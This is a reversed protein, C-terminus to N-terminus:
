PSAWNTGGALSPWVLNGEETPETNPLIMPRGNDDLGRAWTQRVFPRGVLFKGTERDLVYYFANRNATVVM